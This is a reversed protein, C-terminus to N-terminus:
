ENLTGPPTIWLAGLQGGIRRQRVGSPRRKQLKKVWPELRGSRVRRRNRRHRKAAGALAKKAVRPKTSKRAAAPIEAQAAGVNETVMRNTEAEAKAGGQAIGRLMGAQIAWCDRAAQSSLAFWANWPNYM